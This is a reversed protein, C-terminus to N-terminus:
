VAQRVKIATDIWHLYSNIAARLSSLENSKIELFLSNKIIKIKANTKPIKNKIEPDIANAIIRAESESNFVFQFNATKM